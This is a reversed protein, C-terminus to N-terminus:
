VKTTPNWVHYYHRSHQVAARNNWPQLFWYATCESLPNAYSIYNESGTQLCHRIACAPLFWIFLFLVKIHLSSLITRNMSITEEKSRTVKRHSRWHFEYSSHRNTADSVPASIPSQRQMASLRWTPLLVSGVSVPSITSISGDWASKRKFDFIHSVKTVSGSFCGLPVESKM